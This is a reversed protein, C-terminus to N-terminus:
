KCFQRWSINFEEPAMDSETVTLAEGASIYRKFGTYGGFSNKSNVEGCPGGGIGIFQNQFQASEPDKLKLKVYKEGAIKLNANIRAEKQTASEGCALLTVSVAVVGFILIIRRM